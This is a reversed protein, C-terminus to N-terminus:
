KGLIAACIPAERKVVIAADADSMEQMAGGEGAGVETMDAPNMSVECAVDGKYSYLHPGRNFENWYSAKDGLGPYAIVSSAPLNSISTQYQSKGLQGFKGILITDDAATEIASGTLGANKGIGYECAFNNPDSGLANFPKGIPVNVLAKLNSMSIVNCAADGTASPAAPAAASSAGGPASGAAGVPAACGSLVLGSAALALGIAISRTVLASTTM